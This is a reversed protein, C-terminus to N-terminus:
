LPARWGKETVYKYIKEESFVEDIECSEGIFVRASELQNSPPENHMLDAFGRERHLNALQRTLAIYRGVVAKQEEETM